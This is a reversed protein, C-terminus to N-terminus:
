LSHTNEKLKQIAFIHIFRRDPALNPGRSPLVLFVNTRSLAGMVTFGVRM